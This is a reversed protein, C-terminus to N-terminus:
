VPLNNALLCPIVSDKFLQLWQAEDGDDVLVYRQKFTDVGTAVTCNGLAERWYSNILFRAYKENINPKLIEGRTV